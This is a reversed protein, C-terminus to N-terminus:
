HEKVEFPKGSRDVALLWAVLKRAVLVTARNAHSRSRERQYIERLRADHFVGLKAAEILICQLRKNRKKSLRHRHSSGGSTDQASTLGCYSMANKASRIRSVEGIELAWTLATIEGVGPVSMLLQVRAELAPHKLLKAVLLKQLANLREYQERCSNILERAEKGLNLGASLQAFYKKGKLRGSDYEVGWEMLLGSLKNRIRVGERVVFSRLRLVQRLDFTQRSVMKIEPLLNVRLLDAITSASKRDNKNKAACLAVLHAPHAVKVERALPVLVDYIWRTFLTAEMAGIWPGPLSKAWSELASRRSEVVGERVVGGSLRKVCYSVTKKHIDLGVYYLDEM